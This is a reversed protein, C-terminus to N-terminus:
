SSLRSMRSCVMMTWRWLGDEECALHMWGVVVTPMSLTVAYALAPCAKGAETMGKGGPIGCNFIDGNTGTPSSFTSGKRLPLVYPLLRKDPSGGVM